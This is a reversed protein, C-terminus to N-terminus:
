YITNTVSCGPVVASTDALRRSGRSTYVATGLYYSVVATCPIFTRYGLQTSDLQATPFQRM